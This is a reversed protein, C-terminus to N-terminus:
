QPAAGPATGSGAAARATADPAPSVGARAINLLRVADYGLDCAPNRPVYVKVKKEIEVIQTHVQSLATQLKLGMAARDRDAQVKSKVALDREVEMRHVRAADVRWQNIQWGAWLLGFVAALLIAVRAYSM